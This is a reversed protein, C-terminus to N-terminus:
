CRAQIDSILPFSAGLVMCDRPVTKETWFWYMTGVASGVVMLVVIIWYAPSRMQYRYKQISLKARLQWWYGLEQMSAGFAAPLLVNTLENVRDGRRTSFLMRGLMTLDGSASDAVRGSADVMRRDCGAVKIAQRIGQIHSTECM